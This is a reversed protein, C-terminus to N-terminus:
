AAEDPVPQLLDFGWAEVEELLQRRSAASGLDILQSLQDAHRRDALWNAPDPMRDPHQKFQAVARLFEGLITDEDL